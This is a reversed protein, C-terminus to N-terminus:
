LAQFMDYQKMSTSDMKGVEEVLTAAFWCLLVAKESSINQLLIATEPAGDLSDYPAAQGICLCYMIHKVCRSWSDSFQLFYAVLASCMKRTVVNGEGSELCRLLWRILNQLLAQADEESLSKRFFVDTFLSRVFSAELCVFRYKAQSYFYSCWLIERERDQRWPSKSCTAMRRTLTSTTALNGPSEFCKATSWTSLTPSHALLGNAV